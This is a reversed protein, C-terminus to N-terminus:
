YGPACLHGRVPPRRTGCALMDSVQGSHMAVYLEPIGHLSLTCYSSYQAQLWSIQLRTLAVSGAGGGKKKARETETELMLFSPM